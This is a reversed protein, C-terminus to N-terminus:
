MVRVLREGRSISRIMARCILGTFTETWVVFGSSRYRISLFRRAPSVMSVMRRKAWLPMTMFQWIPQQGPQFSPASSCRVISSRAAIYGATCLTDMTGSPTVFNRSPSSGSSGKVGSCAPFVMSWTVAKPSRQTSFYPVRM